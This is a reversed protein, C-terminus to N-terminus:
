QAQGARLLKASVRGMVELYYAMEADNLDSESIADAKEAFDAYKGLFEFYRVLSTADSMDLHTMFDCYEDMFAEYSDLFEKVEPSIGGKAPAVSTKAPSQKESSATQEKSAASRSGSSSPTSREQTQAAAASEKPAMREVPPRGNVILSLIWLAAIVIVIRGLVKKNM